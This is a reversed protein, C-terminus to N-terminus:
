LLCPILSRLAKHTVKYKYAATEGDPTGMDISLKIIPQPKEKSGILWANDNVDVVVFAINKGLPIYTTSDFSLSVDDYRSHKEVSSERQCQADGCIDVDHYSDHNIIIKENCIARLDVRAPLLDGNFFVIKKIGPLIQKSPLM